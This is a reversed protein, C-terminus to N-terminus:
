ARSMRPWRSTSETRSASTSPWRRRTDGGAKVHAGVLQEPRVNPNDDLLRQVGQRMRTFLREPVPARPTVYGNAEYARRDAESLTLM